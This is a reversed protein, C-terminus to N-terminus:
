TGEIIAFDESMKGDDYLSINFRENEGDLTYAIEFYVDDFAGNQDVTGMYFKFNGDVFTARIDFKEEPKDSIEISFAVSKEDVVTNTLKISKPLDSEDYKLEDGAISKIAENALLADVLEKAITKVKEDSLDLTIVTAGDFEKGDVTVAKTESVFMEETINKNLVESIAKVVDSVAEKDLSVSANAVNQGLALAGAELLIPKENLGFLDTYYIKQGNADVVAGLTPKEGFVDFSMDLKSLGSDVDNSATASLSLKGMSALDQNQVKFKDVNFSFTAIQDSVDGSLLKSLLSDEEAALANTLSDTFLEKPTPEKCSTFAFASLILVFATLAALVRKKM